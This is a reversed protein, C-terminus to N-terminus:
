INKKDFVSFSQSLKRAIIGRSKVPVPPECRTVNSVPYGFKGGRKFRFPSKDGVLHRGFDARFEAKTRYIVPEGINMFGVLLAKGKGTRIIGVRQGIYPRLSNTRRTEITKEGSLIQDTFPQAKDNINIGRTVKDRPPGKRLTVMAPFPYFNIAPANSACFDPPIPVPSPVGGGRTM